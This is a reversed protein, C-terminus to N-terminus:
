KSEEIAKLARRARNRASRKGYLRACFSTLVDVMDEVLDDKLEGTEVFVLRRGSACLAAELYEAGFRALRERHEVVITGVAPDRLLRLLKARRGNLGSGVECVAQSVSLRKETAFEVLRAVQRDLDSKQDSGSVRAYLAVGAGPSQSAEEVLITGTKLQIAKAPLV